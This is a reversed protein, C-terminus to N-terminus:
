VLLCESSFLSTLVKVILIVSVVTIVQHMLFTFFLFLCRQELHLLLPQTNPLNSSGVLSNNKLLQLEILKIGRVILSWLKSEFKIVDDSGEDDNRKNPFL